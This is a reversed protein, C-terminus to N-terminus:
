SLTLLIIKKDRLDNSHLKLYIFLYNIFHLNRKELLMLKM